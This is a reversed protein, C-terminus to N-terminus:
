KGAASRIKEEMFGIICEKGDIVMTPFSCAPNWKAVENRVETRDESSLTDMDIYDYAVGLENLLAKTKRCWGCTSLTYIMIRGPQDGDVHQPTVM